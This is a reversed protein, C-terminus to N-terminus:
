PYARYLMRPFPITERVHKLGCIWSLTREIGLGFGSHPVSGYKRLDFYWGYREPDLKNDLISKMLIEPDEERQSGGIIEGYGEPALLDACLVYDPKEPHQKMYFAKVKKPYNEIFVPKEFLNTIITEDDGGLDSGWEMDSGNRRLLELAEDYTVRHFPPEVKKLPEIDRELKKLEDATEKITNQVIYSVFNEQLELNDKHEFFAMEGEVMWFETLHRRTKSREARFTPGLCYVKGLGFIAAELYLQGTQSLYTKGLDFYDVSFLNSSDEGVTTTFIPTDILTFQNKHFFDRVNRVLSDRVRMIAIQRPSRLWLHRNNLLFDPGHEKKGIPFEESKQLIDVSEVHLEFGGPSRAEPVVKGRVMASSELPLKKIEEYDGGFNEREVIAQCIGSGDRVVLFSVKGSSRRNAVWGKITVVEGAHRPFDKILCDSM